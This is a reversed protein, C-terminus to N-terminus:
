GTVRQAFRRIAYELGHRFEMRHPLDSRAGCREAQHVLAPIDPFTPGSPAGGGPRFAGGCTGSFIGTGLAERASSRKVTRSRVLTREPGVQTRCSASQPALTM